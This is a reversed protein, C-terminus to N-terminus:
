KAGQLSKSNVVRLAVQCIIAPLEDGEVVIKKGVFLDFEVRFGTSFAEITWYQKTTKTLEDVVTMAAAVDTCFDPLHFHGVGDPSRWSCSVDTSRTWRMVDIAIAENTQQANM